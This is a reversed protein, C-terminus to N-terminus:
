LDTQCHVPTGASTATAIVKNDAVIEIKLNPTETSLSKSQVADLTIQADDPLTFSEEWPAITLFSESKGQPGTATYSVQVLSASGSVRLQVTHNKPAPIVRVGTYFLPRQAAEIWDVSYEPTNQKLQGPLLLSNQEEERVAHDDDHTVLTWEKVRKTSTKWTATLTADERQWRSQETNGEMSTESQPAGLKQKVVDIPQGVLEPVNWIPETSRSRCGSLTWSAILLLPAWRM